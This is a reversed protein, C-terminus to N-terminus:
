GAPPYGPRGDDARLHGRWDPSNEATPRTRDPNHATPLRAQTIPQIEMLEALEVQRLGPYRSIYVLTRAQACTPESHDLQQQFRQRMLRGIDAFLFNPNTDYNM